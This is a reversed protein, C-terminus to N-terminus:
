AFIAIRDYVATVGTTSWAVREAEVKEARSRVTGTLTVVGDSAVVQIRSSDADASRRLADKIHQAVDSKPAHSKITLLNSVGRVGILYRVVREAAKRQYQWDVEGELTVWGNEVRARIAQHPVEIEWKLTSLIQHALETDSEQSSDYAKVTLEQAVARVGAVREAAEAAALKQAFTSVSGTLTVVGSRVSIGIEDEIIRPDSRLEECVDRRLEIDSKMEREERSILTPVLACQASRTRHGSMCVPHAAPAADPTLCRGVKEFRSAGPDRSPGRRIADPPVQRRLAGALAIICRSVVRGCEEALSVHARIWRGDCHRGWPIQL